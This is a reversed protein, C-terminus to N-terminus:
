IRTAYRPISVMDHTPQGRLSAELQVETVIEAGERSLGVRTLAECGFARLSEISVLTDLGPERSVEAVPASPSMAPKSDIIVRALEAIAQHQYLQSLTVNLGAQKAEFVVNISLKSNGGLDFFNDGPKVSDLRLVKKWIETLISEVDPLAPKYPVALTSTPELDHTSPLPALGALVQRDIKGSPTLPLRPLTVIRQPLMYDPLKQKLFE